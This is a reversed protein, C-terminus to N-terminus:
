RLTWTSHADVFPPTVLDGAVDIEQAGKMNLAPGIAAIRGAEIAIDAQQGGDPLTVNRLVLDM